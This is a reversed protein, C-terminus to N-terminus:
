SQRWGHNYPSDWYEFNDVLIDGEGTFPDEWTPVQLPQSSFSPFDWLPPFGFRIQAVATSQTIAFVLTVAVCLMITSKVDRM